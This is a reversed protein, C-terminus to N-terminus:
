PNGEGTRRELTDKEYQTPTKYENYYDYDDVSTEFCDPDRFVNETFGHQRMFENIWRMKEVYEEKGISFTVRNKAIYSDPMRKKLILLKDFAYFVKRISDADFRLAKMINSIRHETRFEQESM